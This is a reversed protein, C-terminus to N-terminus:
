SGPQRTGAPPRGGPWRHSLWFRRDASSRADRRKDRSVTRRRRDSGDRRCSPYSDDPARRRRCGREARSGPQSPQLSRGAVIRVAREGAPCLGSSIAVGVADLDVEPPIPVGIWWGAIAPIGFLVFASLAGGAFALLVAEFFLHQLLRRRGAGLAARICLERERSVGRVLMMGSINLCVILLVSGALGLIISFAQRSQPREAAGLSFNPEVTAAKFENTTPYRRALGSVVASVLANAQAIDVDPRLRGHIRVWDVARDDRLGPNEKLRPHRELPIFLLSGPAQFIHFHGRFDEPAIGVVVHPVGDITVSKGVADPDSAMRTRWFDDSLVVRPEASAADDIAPDFGPGRALSVGFTSFYNASVYLAPVRVPAKDDPTRSGVESFEMTWGTIALGTNADRLARYDPYSWRELAWVGAKARLPGVPLVLIETLGDPDIGRAPASLARNFTALAVVAGMGIGLSIVCVLTFAREKVLSRAAHAMDRRISSLAERLHDM